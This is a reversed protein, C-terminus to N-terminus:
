CSTNWGDYQLLRLWWFTWLLPAYTGPPALVNDVMNSLRDALDAASDWNGDCRRRVDRMYDKAAPLVDKVFTRAASIVSATKGAATVFRGCNALGSYTVFRTKLEIHVSRLITAETHVIALARRTRLTLGQPTDVTATQILQIRRMQVWIRYTCRYQLHVLTQQSLTALKGSLRADEWTDGLLDTAQLLLDFWEIGGDAPNPTPTAEWGDQFPPTQYAVGWVFTDTGPTPTGDAAEDKLVSLQAYTGAFGSLTMLTSNNGLPSNTAGGLAFVSFKTETVARQYDPLQSYDQLIQDPWSPDMRMTWETFNDVGDRDSDVAPQPDPDQTWDTIMEEVWDPLGDGDIDVSSDQTVLPNTGLEREQLDSLGDGDFDEDGDAIGNGGANPFDPIGNCDADRLFMSDPNTPDSKVVCIEYGDLLGDYDSDQHLIARFFFHLPEGPLQALYIQAPTGYGAVLWFPCSLWSSPGLNPTAFIDFWQDLPANTVMLWVDTVGAASIQDVQLLILRPDEPGNKPDMQPPDQQVGGLPLVLPKPQKPQANSLDAKALLTPWRKVKAARQPAEKNFKALDAGRLYQEAPPIKLPTPKVAAAAVLGPPRSARLEDAKAKAEAMKQNLFRTTEEARQRAQALRQERSLATPDNPQGQAAITTLMGLALVGSLIRSIFLQRKM